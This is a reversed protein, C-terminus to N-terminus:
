SHQGPLAVRTLRVRTLRRLRRAHRRVAVRVLRCLPAVRPPGSRFRHRDAHPVVVVPWRARSLVGRVVPGLRAGGFGVRGGTGVVVAVARVSEMALVRVPYGRVVEHGM